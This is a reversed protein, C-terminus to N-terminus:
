RQASARLDSSQPVGAAEAMVYFLDTNDIIRTGPYWKGEYKRFLKTGKVKAYLRVLENTHNTTRYTVEGDPCNPCANTPDDPCFGDVQAPLDGKDLKLSDNLRMYSNSHDATVILLTNGWNIGDGPQDIYAMAAKVAEDLDWSTGIMLKYDNAHNAWDIDGQEIMLFFGDRDQSLVELAAVTADKLLPNELTQRFIVPTSPNDYPMPPEFNGGDGGFLGFLKMGYKAAVDAAYLLTTEGIKGSLREAFVYGGIDGNQAARYLDYPM